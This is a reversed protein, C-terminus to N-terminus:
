CFGKCRDKTRAIESPRVQRLFARRSKFNTKTGLSPINSTYDNRSIIGLVTFQLRNMGLVATLDQVDYQLYRGQSIPRFVKTVSSYILLDSDRSIVIDNPQCDKAIALDAETVAEIVHKWGQQHLYAM